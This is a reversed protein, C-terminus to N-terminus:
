CAQGLLLTQIDSAVAENRLPLLLLAAELARCRLLGPVADDAARNKLVHVSQRVDPIQRGFDRYLICHNKFQKRHLEIKHIRDVRISRLVPLNHRRIWREQTTSALVPRERPQRQRVLCGIRRM